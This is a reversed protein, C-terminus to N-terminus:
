KKLKGGANDVLQALRDPFERCLGEVNHKCNFDHVICKLRQSFAEYTEEWALAPVTSRERHRIWAVATEHLLVDGLQGPQLGCNSGMFNKLGHKRLASSYLPTVEGTVQVYFGNGRDVFIVRPATTGQFRVNLAVRVKQMLISAGAETEGPFGPPLIEVHLKGRTLIPAWYVRLTDSGSLKLVNKDGRLNENAYKSDNSIWGQGDKRALVM